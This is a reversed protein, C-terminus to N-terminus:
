THPANSRTILDALVRRIHSLNPTRDGLTEAFVDIMIRAAEPVPAHLAPALQEALEPYAAEFRRRPDLNDLPATTEPAVYRGLLDLLNGLAHSKVMNEASFVEGRGFRNLGIVLQATFRGLTASADAGARDAATQEAMASMREALDAKDVLVRYDNARAVELESDGFVAQEVLHGDDYLVNRGHATEAFFLVIREPDPLWSPDDRMDAAAEDAAIVWFDHDSWQDPQRGTRAMSGLAILGIVDPETEAWSVLEATFRRYRSDDM